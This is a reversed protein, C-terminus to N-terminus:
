SYLVDDEPFGELYERIKRSISPGIQVPKWFLPHIVHWYSYVENIARLYAGKKYPNSTHNMCKYLFRIVRQNEPIHSVVHEEAM